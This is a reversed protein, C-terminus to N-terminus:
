IQEIKVLRTGGYWYPLHFPLSSISICFINCSLTLFEVRNTETVANNNTELKPIEFRDNDELM